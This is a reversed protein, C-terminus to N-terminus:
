TFRVMGTGSEGITVVFSSSVSVPVRSAEVIEFQSFRQAQTLANFIM